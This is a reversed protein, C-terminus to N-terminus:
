SSPSVGSNQNQWSCAVVLVNPNNPPNPNELDVKSLNKLVPFASSSPAFQLDNINYKKVLVERWMKDKETHIRWNLKSMAITNANRASRIGLGGHTKPKCITDWDVLHIKRQDDVSGWLFNRSIIDIEKHVSSPLWMVQMFYNPISALVFSVLTARGAMSFFKTKWGSLKSRIKELIFECNVKSCRKAVIPIGLYKGLENTMQGSRSCFFELTDKLYQANTLTAKGLFILDDAFFIHSLTPGRKGAKSGKWKGKAMGNSLKISLYEMCLIFLYPSIPDGQRIGRSPLFADTKNGNVLISITSSSVCNMVLSILKPPFKFFTLAERIFSWELRDYAKELDLKVVMDGVRGKRKSFSHVLEGTYGIDMLICDSMCDTYAHVRSQSIPAGGFNEVQDVVNNFDGIVLWPGNFYKAVERLEDWLHFRLEFQPRGYVGSLFWHFKSFISHSRVQVITHIAQFTSTVVDVCVENDDWLLWLGGARGDSDVVHSCPYGCEVAAKKADHGFLKTELILMISPSHQNKLDRMRRNFEMKAAGRYNWSLMKMSWCYSNSLGLALKALTQDFLPEQTERHLLMMKAGLFHCPLMLCEYDMEETGLLISPKIIVHITEMKGMLDFIQLHERAKSYQMSRGYSNFRGEFSASLKSFSSSRHIQSNPSSQALGQISGEGEMVPTNEGGKVILARLSGGIFDCQQQQSTPSEFQPQTPSNAFSSNSREIRIESSSKPLISSNSPASTFNSSSELNKIRKKVTLLTAELNAPANSFLRCPGTMPSFITETPIIAKTPNNSQGVNENTGLDENTTKSSAEIEKGIPASSTSISDRKPGVDMHNSTSNTVTSKLITQKAPKFQTKVNFAGAPTGNTRGVKVSSYGMQNMSGSRQNSETPGKSVKPGNSKGESSSELVYKQTKKKKKKEEVILWPGFEDSQNERSHKPEVTYNPVHNNSAVQIGRAGETSTSAELKHCGTVNIKADENINAQNQLDFNIVSTTAFPRSQFTCVKKRHGIRGCAFCLGRIGEYVVKQRIKGLRLLKVLPKNLDIRVCVRAYQGRTHHATHADVRLLTRIENGIRQLSITDYYEASLGPFLSDPAVM